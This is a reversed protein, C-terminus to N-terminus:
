FVNYKMAKAGWELGVMPKNPEMLQILGGILNRHM